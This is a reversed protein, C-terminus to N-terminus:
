NEPSIRYIIKFYIIATLVDKRVHEFDNEDDFDLYLNGYLPSNDVDEFAYRYASCFTSIYNRRKIFENLTLYPIYNGRSFGREGNSKFGFGTEVLYCENVASM